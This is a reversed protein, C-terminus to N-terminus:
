ETHLSLFTSKYTGELTLLQNASNSLTRELRYPHEIRVESSFWTSNLQVTAEKTMHNSPPM